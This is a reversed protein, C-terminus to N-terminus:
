MHRLRHDPGSSDGALYKDGTESVIRKYWADDYGSEVCDPMPIDKEHAPKPLSTDFGDRFRVFLQGFFTAWDDTLKDGTSKSFDTLMKVASASGEQELAKLAQRDMNAVDKFFQSETAVIKEQVLPYVASWRSYAFNSVLNFAWDASRMNFTMRDATGKKELFTDPAGTSSSYVPTRVSLSQDDVGFWILGGVPYPVSARPTAVYHWANQQVGVTRENVYAKGDHHWLLPRQRYEAHFAGAGVDNSEDFWTGSFRTRMLWMSNNVSLTQKARVFLPM